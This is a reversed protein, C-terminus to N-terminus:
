KVIQAAGWVLVILFAVFAVTLAVLLMKARRTLQKKLPLSSGDGTREGTRALAEEYIQTRERHTLVLSAVLGGTGSLTVLAAQYSQSVLSLGVISTEMFLLPWEIRIYQVIGMQRRREERSLLLRQVLLEHHNRLNRRYFLILVVGAFVGVLFFLWPLIVNFLAASALFADDANPYLLSYFMYVFRNGVVSGCIASVLGLALGGLAPLTATFLPNAFASISPRHSLALKEKGRLANRGKM